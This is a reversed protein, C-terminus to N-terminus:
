LRTVTQTFNLTLVKTADKPIPSSFKLQTQTSAGPNDAGGFLSIAGIGGSINGSNLGVTIPMSITVVGPSTVSPVMPFSAQMTVATGSPAGNETGLTSTSPYASAFSGRGDNLQLWPRVLWASINAARATVTYTVGSITVAYVQDPQGMPVYGRLTYTVDLYEDSLVTLTVPNGASDTILARSFLSGSSPGIGVETLNGAAVGAGFRRTVSARSYPVSPYVPFATSAGQNTTTSALFNALATDTYAPAATGTGVSIKSTQTNYIWGAMGANTILNKFEGTDKVLKGTAAKYVKMRYYGEVGVESGPLILNTM